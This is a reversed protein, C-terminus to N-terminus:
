ASYFSCRGWGTPLARGWGTRSAIQRRQWLPVNSAWTWGTDRSGKRWLMKGDLWSWSASTHPTIEGKICSKANQETLKWSRNVLTRRIAACIEPTDVVRGLKTGDAFNCLTCGTGNDLGNIFIYFVVPGLILGQHVSNTVPRWSPKPGNIVVRQVGQCNLLNECWRVVWKDLGHKM